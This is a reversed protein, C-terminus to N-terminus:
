SKDPSPEPLKGAQADWWTAWAVHDAGFDKGGSLQKLAGVVAVREVHSIVVVGAVAAELAVGSQLVGIVPKAIVAGQAIQVDFDRVYARQEGIFIHSRPLKPDGHSAVPGPKPTLATILAPMARPDRLAALAPYARLRMSEDDVKAAELYASALDPHGSALAAHLAHDRVTASPDVLSSRVLKALGADSKVSGLLDVAGTRVEVSTTQLEDVLWPVLAEVPAKSLLSKAFTARSSSKGAIRALLRERVELDPWVSPAAGDLLAQDALRTAAEALVPEQPCIALARDVCDFAEPYLGREVCWQALSALAHPQKGAATLQEHYRPLLDARAEVRAVTDNAVRQLGMPTLLSLGDKRSRVEGVLRSGDTLEVVDPSCALAAALLPTLAFIMEITRRRASARNRTERKELDAARRNDVSRGFSVARTM